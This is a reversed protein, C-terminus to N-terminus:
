LAKSKKSEIWSCFRAYDEPVGIDIFAGKLPVASMNGERALDPFLDRELSFTANPWGKFLSPMLRYAGANIWGPDCATGKEKFGTVYGNEVHVRGFRSCNPVKNVAVANGPAKDLPALAAENWTDANLVFFDQTLAMEHVARSVAGGTDLREDEIIWDLSLTPWKGDLLETEVSQVVMEARFGLLLTIRHAGQKYWHDIQYSLFSRGLVPAL